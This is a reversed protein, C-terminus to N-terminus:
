HLSPHPLAHWVFTSEPFRGIIPVLSHGLLKVRSEM